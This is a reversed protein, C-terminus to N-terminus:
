VHKYMSWAQGGGFDLVRLYITKMPHHVAFCAAVVMGSDLKVQHEVLHLRVRGSTFVKDTMTWSLQPSEYFEIWEDKMWVIKYEPCLGFVEFIISNIYETQKDMMKEKTM